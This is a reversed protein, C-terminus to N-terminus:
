CFPEARLRPRTATGMGCSRALGTVSTTVTGAMLIALDGPTILCFTLM